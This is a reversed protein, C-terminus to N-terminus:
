ELAIGENMEKKLERIENEYREVVKPYYMISKKKTNYVHNNLYINYDEQSLWGDYEQEDGGDFSAIVRLFLSHCNDYVRINDAAILYELGYKSFVKHTIIARHIENQSKSKFIIENGYDLRDIKQTKLTKYVMTEFEKVRKEHEINLDHLSRELKQIRKEYWAKLSKKRTDYFHTNFGIPKHFYDYKEATENACGDYEWHDDVQKVMIRCPQHDRCTTDEYVRGDIHKYPAIGNRVMYLIEPYNM